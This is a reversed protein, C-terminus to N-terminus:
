RTLATLTRSARRRLAIDCLGGLFGLGYPLHYAAFVVPMVPLFTLNKARRCAVISAVLSAGGYTMLLLALMRASWSWFLATTGLFLLAMAFAGPVLHRWSAPIRHKRIVHAKWYGYQVHQRALGMLTSRPHYWSRIKPTQWIRGGSRTLRLNLEDDQNRILEEDFLGLRQLTSKRWCGYTVTDVYGEFTANHFAAGGSGFTSEYALCIGREIYTRGRPLAPGGVNDAATNELAKVCERIYDSAYETHVDMRIIIGGRAHLIGSNLGSSVTQHNNDLIILSKFLPQFEALVRRTGDDSMGDAILFECDYDPSLEQQLLSELFLRIHRIENRCPVIVSVVRM